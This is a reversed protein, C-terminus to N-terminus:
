NPLLMCAKVDLQILAPPDSSDLGSLCVVCAHSQQSVTSPQMATCHVPVTSLTVLHLQMHACWLEAYRKNPDM